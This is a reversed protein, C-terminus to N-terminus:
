TSLCELLFNSIVIRPDINYVYVNYYSEDLLKQLKTLKAINYKKLKERDVLSLFENPFEVDLGAIKGRILLLTNLVESSLDFFLKTLIEDESFENAVEVISSTDSSFFGKSVLKKLRSRVDYVGDVVLNYISYYRYEDVNFTDGFIGKIDVGKLYMFNVIFSRSRITPLVRDLENTILVVFTNNPLEELVKLFSNQAETTANEFGSIIVVKGGVSRIKSVKEIVDELGELFKEVRSTNLSKTRKFERLFLIADESLEVETRLSSVFSFFRLFFEVFKNANTVNNIFFRYYLNYDYVGYAYVDPHNFPIFSEYDKFVLNNVLESTFLKLVGKPGNFIFAGSKHEKVYSTIIKEVDRNLLM